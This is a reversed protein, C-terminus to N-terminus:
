HPHINASTLLQPRPGYEVYQLGYYAGFLFFLATGFASGVTRIKRFSNESKLYIWLNVPTPGHLFMAAMAVLIPMHGIADVKGFGFIAATFISGLGIIALRLLGLGTLIYFAFTFEVFGAAIMFFQPPMGFTLYPREALLPLTWQPYAWKEIAGWMLTLCISAQLAIMRGSRFRQSKFTTLALYIAIGIFMPYDSLHFFGYLAVAYAYLALIGLSGVICTRTSLMSIAIGLQIWAPWDANSLLEPTLIVQGTAFLAMFFGGTGARVVFEETDENHGPASLSRAKVTAIRDLLFTMSILLLAVAFTLLFHSTLVIRAPTPMATVDYPEFWKVHAWAAQPLLTAAGAAASACKIIRRKSISPMRRAAIVQPDPADPACHPVGAQM